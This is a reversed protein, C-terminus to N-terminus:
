VKANKDEVKLVIGYDKNISEIIEITESEIMEPTTLIKKIVDETTNNPNQKYTAYLVEPHVSLAFAKIKVSYGLLIGRILALERYSRGSKALNNITTIMEELQERAFNDIQKIMKQEEESLEAKFNDNNITQIKM